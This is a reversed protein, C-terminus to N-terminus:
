IGRIKSLWKEDYVVERFPSKLLDGTQCWLRYTTDSVIDIITGSYSFCRVSPGMIRVRDGVQFV